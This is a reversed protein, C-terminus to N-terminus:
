VLSHYRALDQPSEQTKQDQYQQNCTVFFPPINMFNPIDMVASCSRCLRVKIGRSVEEIYFIMKLNEGELRIEIIDAVLACCFLCSCIYM